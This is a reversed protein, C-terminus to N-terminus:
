RSEESHVTTPVDYTSPVTGEIKDTFAEYSWWVLMFVFFATFAVLSQIALRETFLHMAAGAVVVATVIAASVVVMPPLGQLVVLLGIAFAAALSVGVHRRVMTRVQQETLKEAV